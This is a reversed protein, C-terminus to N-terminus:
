YCSVHLIPFTAGAPGTSYLKANKASRVFNLAGADASDFIANENTREGPAPSGGCYAAQGVTAQHFALVCIIFSTLLVSFYM